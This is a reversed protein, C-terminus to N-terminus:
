EMEQPAHLSFSTLSPLPHPSAWDSHSESRCAKEPVCPLLHQRCLTLTFHPIPAWHLAPASLSPLVPQGVVAYSVVAKWTKQGLYLSAIHGSLWASRFAPKQRWGRPGKRIMVGCSDAEPAVPRHSPSLVGTSQCCWPELGSEGSELWTVAKALHEMEGLLMKRPCGIRRTQSGRGSVGYNGPAPLSKMKLSCGWGRTSVPTM